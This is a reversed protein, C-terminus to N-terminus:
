RARSGRGADPRGARRSASIRARRSACRRRPAARRARCAIDSAITSIDALPKPQTPMVSAIALEDADDGVAVQAAVHPGVQEVRTSSTMVCSGSSRAAAILEDALRQLHEVRRLDRRQEHHLGAAPRCRANARDTARRRPTSRIRDSVNVSETMAAAGGGAARRRRAHGQRPQRGPLRPRRGALGHRRDAGHRAGDVIPKELTFVRGVFAEARRNLFPQRGAERRRRASGGGSRSRPSRFCRSAILQAQWPWTSRGLSIVGSWCRRSASGCCSHAPRWCKSCLLIAALIFWNWIGLSASLRMM